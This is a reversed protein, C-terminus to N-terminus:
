FLFSLRKNSYGPFCKDTFRHTKHSLDADRPAAPGDPPRPWSGVGDPARATPWRCDPPIGVGPVTRECVCM